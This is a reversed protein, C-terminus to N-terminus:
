DNRIFALTISGIVVVAFLLKNVTMFFLLWDGSWEFINNAQSFFFISALYYVFMGRSIIFLPDKNPLKDSTQSIYSMNLFALVAIVVSSVTNPYISIRAPDPNSLFDIVTIGVVLTICFTVLNKRVIGYPLEKPTLAAIMISIPITADLHTTWTNPAPLLFELAMGRILEYSVYYFALRVGGQLSRYKFAGVVLPIVSAYLFIRFVLGM